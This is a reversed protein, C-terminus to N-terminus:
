RTSDYLGKLSSSFDSKDWTISPRQCYSTTGIYQEYGSTKLTVFPVWGVSSEQVEPLFEGCLMYQKSGDSGTAFGFRVRRFRAPHPKHARFDSAASKLLFELTPDATPKDGHAASKQALSPIVTFALFIAIHAILRRM